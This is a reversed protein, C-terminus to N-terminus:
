SNRRFELRWFPTFHSERSLQPNLSYMDILTSFQALKEGGDFNRGHIGSLYLWHRNHDQKEDYTAKAPGGSIVEPQRRIGHCSRAVVDIAM